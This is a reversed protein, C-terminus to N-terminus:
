RGTSLCIIPELVDGKSAAGFLKAVVRESLPNHTKVRLMPYTKVRDLITKEKGFYAVYLEDLRSVDFGVLPGCPLLWGAVSVRVWKAVAQAWVYCLVVDGRLLV